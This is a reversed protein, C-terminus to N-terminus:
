HTSKGQACPIEWFDLSQQIRPDEPNKTRQIRLTGGLDRSDGRDADAGDEHAADACRRDGGELCDVGDFSSCM